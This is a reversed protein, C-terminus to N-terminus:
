VEEGTENMVFCEKYTCGLAEAITRMDDSSLTDLKMRSNFSQRSIGLLEALQALTKGRRGAMLKVREAKTLPVLDGGHCHRPLWLM